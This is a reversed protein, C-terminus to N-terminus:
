AHGVDDNRITSYRGDREHPSSRSPRGAFVRTRQPCSAPYPGCPTPLVCAFVEWTPLRKRPDILCTSLVGMSLNLHIM